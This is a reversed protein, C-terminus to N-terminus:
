PTGSNFHNTPDAADFFRRRRNILANESPVQTVQRYRARFSSKRDKMLMVTESKTDQGYRPNLRMALLSILLDDFEEPFPLESDATLDTVREWSGLDARYFWERNLSATGLVVSGASEIQRGNAHLTVASTDFVALNDKIAFRAGDQPNPALFLTTAADINCVLRTNPPIYANQIYVSQDEARAWSNDLGASGYSLTQFNEGALGGYLSKIISQLRRLGEEFEDAEPSTGIPILGSERLSDTVIQRLSTM